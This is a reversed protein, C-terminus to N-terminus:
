RDKVESVVAADGAGRVSTSDSCRGCKFVVWMLLVPILMGVLVAIPESWSEKEQDM